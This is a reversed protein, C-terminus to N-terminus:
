RNNTIKVGKKAAAFRKLCTKGRIGFAYEDAEQQKFTLARQM